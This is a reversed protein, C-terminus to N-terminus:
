WGEDGWGAKTLDDNMIEGTKEAVFPGFIPTRTHGRGEAHGVLEHILTIRYVDKPFRSENEPAFLKEPILVTAWVIQNKEDLAWVTEGGHNEAFAGDRLAITIAGRTCPIMRGEYDCLTSCDGTTVDGYTTEHKRGFDLTADLNERVHAPVDRCTVIPHGPPLPASVYPVEATAAPSYLFALLAVVIVTLGLGLVMGIVPLWKRVDLKM